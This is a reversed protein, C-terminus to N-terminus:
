FATSRVRGIKELDILRQYLKRLHPEQITKLKPRMPLRMTQNFAKRPPATSRTLPYDSRCTGNSTCVAPTKKMAEIDRSVDSVKKQLKFIMENLLIMIESMKGVSYKVSLGSGSSHM